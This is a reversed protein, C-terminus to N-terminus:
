RGPNHCQAVCGDHCASKDGGAAVCQETCAKVCGKRSGIVLAEAKNPLGLMALALGAIGVGFRRLAQRRTVSQALGKTLEDFKNQM